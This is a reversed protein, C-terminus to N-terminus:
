ATKKVIYGIIIAVLGVIVKDWGNALAPFQYAVYDAIGFVVLLIGAIFLGFFVVLARFKRKLHGIDKLWDIVYRAKTEFFSIALLLLKDKYEDLFSKLEGKLKKSASNKKKKKAM